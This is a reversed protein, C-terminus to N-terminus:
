EFTVRKIPPNGSSPSPVDQQDGELTTLFSAVARDAAALAHDLDTYDLPPLEDRRVRSQATSFSSTVIEGEGRTTKGRSRRQPPRICDSIGEFARMAFLRRASRNTVEVVIGQGQLRELIQLTANISLGTCHAIGTASALPHLMLLDVVLGARSTSRQGRVARRAFTWAYEMRSLLDDFRMAEVQLEHLFCAIWEVRDTSADPRFAAPATLPVPAAFLGAEQWAKVLAARMPARRRNQKWIWRYYAEAAQLLIGQGPDEEEIARMAANISRQRRSGPHALWAYLDYACWSADHQLMRDEPDDPQRLPLGELVAVLRFPDVLQGDTTAQTRIAALRARFLFAPLLPHGRLRHDLRVIASVTGVLVAGVNEVQM